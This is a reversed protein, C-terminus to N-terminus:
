IDQEDSQVRMLQEQLEKIEDQLQQNIKQLNRINNIKKMEDRGFWIKLNVYRSEAWRHFEMSNFIKILVNNVNPFVASGYAIGLFHRENQKYISCIYRTAACKHLQPHNIHGVNLTDVTESDDFQRQQHHHRISVFDVQVDNPWKMRKKDKASIVFYQDDLMTISKVDFSYFNELKAATIKQILSNTVPDILLDYENLQLQKLSRTILLPGVIIDTFWYHLLIIADEQTDLKLTSIRHCMQSLLENPNLTSSYKIMLKQIIQLQGTTLEAFLCEIICITYDHTWDTPKKVLVCHSDRTWDIDDFAMLENVGNVACDFAVSITWPQYGLLYMLMQYPHMGHFKSNKSLDYIINQSEDKLNEANNIM